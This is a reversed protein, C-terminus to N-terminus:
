HWDTEFPHTIALHNANKVYCHTASNGTLSQPGHDLAPQNGDYYLPGYHDATTQLDFKFLGWTNNLDLLIMSRRLITILYKPSQLIHKADKYWTNQLPFLSTFSNSKNRRQWSKRQPDILLHLIIIDHIMMVPFWHGVLTHVKQASELM